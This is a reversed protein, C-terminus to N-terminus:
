SETSEETAESEPVQDVPPSADEPDGAPEESELRFLEVCNKGREKADHLAKNAQSRLEEASFRSRGDFTGIGISVTVHRAYAETTVESGSIAERVRLATRVAEAPTTHPLLLAFEDGGFRAAFDTARITAKLSSAVHALVLDGFEYETTDNVSKFDDVDILCLSLPTNHRQARKFETSQVAKFHRDNILGTKFDELVLGELERTREQLQLYRERSVLMLEVRHLLEETSYPKTIFDRIPLRSRAATYVADLNEVLMIVPIPDDERQLDELVELEVSGPQLVLPNLVILSPRIRALIRHTEIISQTENVLFGHRRLALVTSDLEDRHHNLMLIDAKPATKQAEQPDISSMPDDLDRIALSATLTPPGEDQM